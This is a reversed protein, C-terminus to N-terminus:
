RICKIFSNNNEKFVEFITGKFQKDYETSTVFTQQGYIAKILEEQRYRDLEGLVDDLLLIASEGRYQSYLELESLKLALAVTRQQGQSAFKRADVGDLSFIIDDRHPGKRACGYEIDKEREKKIEEFIEASTAHKQITSEYFINLEEKNNSIRRYKEKAIESLKTIYTERQKIIWFISKSLLDDWADLEKLTEQTITPKKLLCVKQQLLKKYNNYEEYFVSSVISMGINLFTRRAIASGQVVSMDEPCFFVVGLKDIIDSIKRIPNDDILIKKEGQRNLYIKIENTIHKRAIEMKIVAFEEGFRIIEKDQNTKPSRLLAAYYISELINTKGTANAGLFFNLEKEPILQLHRYSRFNKIELKKIYM